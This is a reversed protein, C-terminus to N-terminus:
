PTALTALHKARKDAWYTLDVALTCTPCACGTTRTGTCQTRLYATLATVTQPKGVTGHDSTIREWEM